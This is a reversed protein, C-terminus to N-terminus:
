TLEFNALYAMRFYFRGQYSSKRVCSRLCAPTVSFLTEVEAGVGVVSNNSDVDVGRGSCELMMSASLEILDVGNSFENKARSCPIARPAAMGPSTETSQSVTM